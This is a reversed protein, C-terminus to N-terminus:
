LCASAARMQRTHTSHPYHLVVYIILVYTRAQLTCANCVSYNSAAGPRVIACCLREHCVQPLLSTMVHCTLSAPGARTRGAGLLLCDGVLQM